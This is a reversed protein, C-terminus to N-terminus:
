VFLLCLYESTEMKKWPFFIQLKIYLVLYFVNALLHVINIIVSALHSRPSARSECEPTGLEFGPASWDSQPKKTTKRLWWPLHQTPNENGRDM